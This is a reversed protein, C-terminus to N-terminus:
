WYSWSTNASGATFSVTYPASGPFPDGSSVAQGNISVTREAISYVAWGSPPSQSLLFCVAETTGFSGSDHTSGTFSTCNGPNPVEPEEEGEPDPQQPSSGGTGVPPNPEPSTGGTGAGGTGAPSGGVGMTTQTTVITQPHPSNGGSGLVRDDDGDGNSVDDLEGGTATACGVSAAALLFLSLSLTEIRTKM